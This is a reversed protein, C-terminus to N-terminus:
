ALAMQPNQKSGLYSAILSSSAVHVLGSNLCTDCPWHVGEGECRLFHPALDNERAARARPWFQVSSSAVRVLGFSNLASVAINANGPWGPRVSPPLAALLSGPQLQLICSTSRDLAVCHSKQRVVRVRDRRGLQQLLPFLHKDPVLLRVYRM